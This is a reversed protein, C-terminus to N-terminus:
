RPREGRSDGWPEEGRREIMGSPMSVVANRGGPDSTVADITALLERSSSSKHLYANIGPKSLAKLYHLNDFMTLIVVKSNPTASRTKSLIEKAVQLQM